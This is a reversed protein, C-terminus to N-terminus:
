ITLAALAKAAHDRLLHGYHKEIMVLSTGSLQAVTMTDLGHLAILDTITSHRLAYATAAIPLGAEMAAAKFPGKWADKDWQRGDARSFLPATPLKSKCQESFFAATAKPLTIKRDAGSKDKGITLAGLRKDFSGATMAAIAGPRLPVLSLGQLFAALDVPSRAILARRQALDLYVDRKGDANKVPKLATKWAHDSTADGQELALNLAARFTSMDRNLSSAARARTAQKEKDQPTANTTALKDRWAKIVKPTLKLLETKSLKADSYIWRKFRADADDAADARGAARLSNVYQMCAGKVDIVESSGGRGKHAFWEIAAKKAMDYRYTEAVDDFKGLSHLEQKGAGESYRTLWSGTVGAAVKRFGFYCGTQVKEWYPSHRPKLAERARVTSISNAM